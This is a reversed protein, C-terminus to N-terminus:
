ASPSSATGNAGVLDHCVVKGRQVSGLTSDSGVQSSTQAIRVGSKGGVEYHREDSPVGFAGITSFFRELVQFKSDNPAIGERAMRRLHQCLALSPALVEFPHILGPRDAVIRLAVCNHELADPADHGVGEAGAEVAVRGDLLGHVVALSRDREVALKRVARATADGLNRRDDVQAAEPHCVQIPRKDADNAVVRVRQQVRVRVRVRAVVQDVRGGCEAEDPGHHPRQEVRLGDGLHVQQSPGLDVLGKEGLTAEDKIPREVRRDAPRFRHLVHCGIAHRRMCKQEVVLEAKEGGAGCGSGSGLSHCDASRWGRTTRQSTSVKPAM